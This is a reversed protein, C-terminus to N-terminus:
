KRKITDYKIKIKTLSPGLSLGFKLGMKYFRPGLKLGIEWAWVPWLIQGQLVAWYCCERMAWDAKGGAEMVQMAGM